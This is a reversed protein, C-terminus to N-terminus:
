EHTLAKVVEAFSYIRFSQTRSGIAKTVAERTTDTVFYWVGKYQQALREVTETLRKDTKQTIEVEIAIEQREELTIVADPLHWTKKKENPMLEYLRRQERECAWTLRGQYRAELSVRLENIRHFHQLSGITPTYTKYLLNATRMGKYTLWVYGPEAFLFKRYEVLEEEMWRRIERRTNRESLVGKKPSNDNLNKPDRGLLRQILDFRVIYQEGLWRLVHFDRDTLQIMDKDIRPPRVIDDTPVLDITREPYDSSITM